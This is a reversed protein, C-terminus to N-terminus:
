ILCEPESACRFVHAEKDSASNLQARFRSPAEPHLPSPRQCIFAIIVFYQANAFGSRRFLNLARESFLRLLAVGVQVRAILRLFCLKLFEVFGRFHQHVRVFPRLVILKTM